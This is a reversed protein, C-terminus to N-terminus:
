CAMEGANKKASLLNYAGKIVVKATNFDFGAPLTIGTYGSSSVGKKVEIIRYETFPKGEEEKNKEFVFIYDKDDFSVVAESPLATVKIDSEEILANVYMGPLVNKCSSTVTGYVRFTKDDSISKGTQSIFAEHAEIENNIFFKVKQGSAVKDADKEFLTLELFLKDSNVIEFLIDTSSVYKGINVNVAKLFGKIPSVLNVTNSINDESLQDPNIGILFLKQELSKVLAKLNKYDVTVQQVNKESYVDDKYLDTHRKFEAEAFVLKNKAELYNQQIDIFDQNEIVALTQGKNVANGPLLSTSKIFGGLPMCVTAQNQPAVSVIGNVKLTNSVSRMEVSGTQIGALKIQDDRLEVIDEPLVEVETAETVPKSDANICSNLTIILGLIIISLKFSVKKM